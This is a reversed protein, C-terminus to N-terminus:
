FMFVEEFVTRRPLMLWKFDNRHRPVNGYVMTIQYVVWKLDIFSPKVKSM